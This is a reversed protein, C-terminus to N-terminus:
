VYTEVATTDVRKVYYTPKEEPKKAKRVFIQCLKGCISIKSSGFIQYMEQVATELSEKARDHKNELDEVEKQATLYKTIIARKEENSYERKETAVQAEVEKTQTSMM